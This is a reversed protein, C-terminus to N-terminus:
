RRRQRLRVLWGLMLVSSGLGLLLSPEPVYTVSEDDHWAVTCDADPPGGDWDTGGDLDNDVGDDCEPGEDPAAPGWCAPDAPYDTLGDGDNDLGDDCPLTPAHEGPDAASDCGPDFGGFDIRGDGDNDLGDQCEPVTAVTEFQRMMEHDEHDLIHCHYPFHGSYDEFRAIVRVIEGPGVQVTDKWGMEHAPPPVKIGSPVIQGGVEDFAERDLVQFFVLHMHMPHTMGSRNAFSWVETTGLEPFETVDVWRSGLVSGNLGDTTVVEWAFPSCADGPGKVLEFTRFEVADGENLTQMPRLSGPVPDTFGAVASVDFRMVDHLEGVGPAGPFPAPATNQLYVSTGGAYPAFDLVLDAREGGGITIETLPVPAPLLGGEQGLLQFSAPSPCPLANSGPCFRLTLTRSNCGNLLRLRYKGQKVAHRPWVKGNVLMTEGLFMDQWVVPYQLTGDVNFSRDQIALPVEFEGSPLGLSQEFADRILWFGALGMYVNLRTIGLAHDHYWLTSPSQWNPYEYSAQQGPLFTLEPQGDFASAVHGGHLHVVAKAEDVAGHPCTDVPLYHSTRLPDGGQSTDRLDNIWNVTIPQGTTAEITPGPYGAGTPGDGYGWVTTPPLESHLQQQVERMAIDYTAAGGSTGSTPQAAAPLPLADVFPTPLVPCTTAACSTLGGQFTGGAADCAVETVENCTAAADAICCAGVPQPCLNPDCTTGAGQYVGPATCAGGPDLVVSCGGDDACCAGSLAATTFGVILEPRYAGGSETSERTAFQKASQIQGEDGILIWGFNQSPNDLWGQVDAVLGATSGWTYPGTDGVGTTASAAPVYDGGQTTWFQTAFFTHRWTADGTAPTDGRGKQSNGTNSAGEGWDSSLRHLSAGFSTSVKVKTCRLNLQVSNITSGPPINGAIDFALVARRVAVQGVSNLADKVKGTFMATGAGNSRDALGDKTIPEFLTNDQIASLSVTDAHALGALLLLTAACGSRVFVVMRVM